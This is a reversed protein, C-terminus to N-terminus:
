FTASVPRFIQRNRRSQRRKSWHRRTKRRRGGVKKPLINERYKDVLYELSKDGKLKELLGNYVTIHYQKDRFSIIPTIFTIIWDDIFKSDANTLIGHKEAYAKRSQIRNNIIYDPLGKIMEETIVLEPGASASM